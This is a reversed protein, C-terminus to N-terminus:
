PKQYANKAWLIWQLKYSAELQYKILECFAYSYKVLTKWKDEGPKQTIIMKVEAHPLFGVIYQYENQQLCSLM